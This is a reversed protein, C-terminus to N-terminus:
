KFKYSLGITGIWVNNSALYYCPTIFQLKKRGLYLGSGLIPTINNKIGDYRLSPFMSFGFSYIGKSIKLSPGGFNLFLQPETKFSTGSFGIAGSLEVKVEKPANETTSQAVGVFSIAIFFALLSHKFLNM